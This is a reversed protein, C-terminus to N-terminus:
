LRSDLFIRKLVRFSRSMDRKEASEKMLYPAFLGFHVSFFLRPFVVPVREEVENGPGGRNEIHLYASSGPFGQSFMAHITSYKTVVCKIKEKAANKKWESGLYHFSFSPHFPGCCYSDMIITHAKKVSLPFFFSESFIAFM